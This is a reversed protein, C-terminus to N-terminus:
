LKKKQKESIERYRKNFNNNFKPTNTIKKKFLYPQKWIIQITRTQLKLQTMSVRLFALNLKVKRELADKAALLSIM